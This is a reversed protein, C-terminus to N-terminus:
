ARRTAMLGDLVKIAQQADRAYADAGIKDAWEQTVPAGGVIVIYKEKKGRSTLFEVLDKQRLMTTSLLASAAIIDAKAEDAAELFRPVSIEVGLDVVKYGASSLMAGVITKGIDHIDGEVTGLVVVGKNALSGGAKKMAEEFVNVGAKMAGAAMVLEPLFVEMRDFKDGLERIAPSFGEEVARAPAIGAALAEKAAAAAADPDFDWISQALKQFIESENSM